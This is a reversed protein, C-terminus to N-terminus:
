MASMVLLKIDVGATLYPRMGNDSRWRGHAKIKALEVGAAWAALVGGRRLSHMGYSDPNLALDPYRAKIARLHLKLRAALSEASALGRASLSWTDLDWGVLFPADPQAGQRVRIQAYKAVMDWVDWGDSSKGALVVTAGQACRDTKSKAVRVLIHRQTTPTAPALAVDRMRLAVLESRRLMGFFGLLLWAVDRQLLHAM